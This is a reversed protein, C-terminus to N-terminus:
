DYFQPQPTNYDSVFPYFRDEEGLSEVGRVCMSGSLDNQVIALPDLPFQRQAPETRASTEM